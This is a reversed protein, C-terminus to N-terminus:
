ECHADIAINALRDAKTNRNRYMHNVQVSQFANILDTAQCYLGLLVKNKVKYQGNLQKTMLESDSNLSVTQAGYEQALQLGKICARYEAVNNTQEGIFEYYEKIVKGSDVVVIGIGSPGPNGRAAGDTFVTLEKAQVPGQDANLLEDVRKYFAELDSAPVGLQEATVITQIRKLIDKPKTKM